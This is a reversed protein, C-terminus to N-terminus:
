FILEVDLGEQKVFGADHMIWLPSNVASMSSWAAFLKQATAVDPAALLLL